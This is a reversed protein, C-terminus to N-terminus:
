GRNKIELLGIAGPLVLMALGLASVGSWAWRSWLAGAATIGAWGGLYYVLVYLSNGRGHSSSLRVNLLGQSTAHITFHGACVLVLSIIVMTLSSIRSLVLAAAYLGVGMLLVPGAGIRGFLRGVLPGLIVGTLYTLYVLSILTTSASFPPATLYYPTYNFVAAFIFMSGFTSVYPALTPMSRLMTFYGPESKQRAPPPGQSPLWAMAALSLGLVLFAGLWFSARWHGALFFGSILRGMLGGVVTAAVYSGMVVRLGAPPLTRALYAALCSTLAPMFLGQVLRAMLLVTLNPSLAALVLCLTTAGGGLAIISRVAWRDALIGFPLCALTIGLIVLSVSLSAVPPSAGFERSIEPLVPQTFYIASITAAVLGFVLAQLPLHGQIRRM